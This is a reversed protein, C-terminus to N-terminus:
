QVPRHHSVIANLRANCAVPQIQFFTEEGCGECGQRVTRVQDTWVYPNVGYYCIQSKRNNIKSYLAETAYSAM